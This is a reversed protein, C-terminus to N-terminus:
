ITERNHRQLGRLNRDKMGYPVSHGQTELSKIYDSEAIVRLLDLEMYKDLNVNGVKIYEHLAMDTDVYEKLIKNHNM